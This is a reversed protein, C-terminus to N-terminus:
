GLDENSREVTAASIVDASKAPKRKRVTDQRGTKRSLGNYSSVGSAEVLFFMSMRKEITFDFLLINM